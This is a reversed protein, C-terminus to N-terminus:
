YGKFHIFSMAQATFYTDIGVFRLLNRLPRVYKTPDTLEEYVVDMWAVTNRRVFIEINRYYIDYVDRWNVDLSPRAVNLSAITSEKNRRVILYKPNVLLDHYLWATLSTRPDKWGWSKGDAEICRTKITKEIAVKFKESKTQICLIEPPIYWSSGCNELIGKNLWLFRDDEFYGEPNLDDGDLFQAGMPIGGEHLIRSVMSTGSRHMGLIVITDV